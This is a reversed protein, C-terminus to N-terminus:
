NAALADEIWSSVDHAMVLMVIGSIRLDDPPQDLLVGPADQNAEMTIPEYGGM